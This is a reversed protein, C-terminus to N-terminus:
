CTSFLVGSPGMMALVEGPKASGSVEDLITKIVPGSKTLSERSSKAPSSISGRMLGEKTEKVQVTKVLRSWRMHFSGSTNSADESPPPDELDVEVNPPEDSTM